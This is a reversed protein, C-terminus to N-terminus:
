MALLNHAPYHLTDRATVSMFLLVQHFNDLNLSVSCSRM